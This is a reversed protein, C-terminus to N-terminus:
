VSCPSTPRIGPHSHAPGLFVFGPPEVGLAAWMVGTLASCLSVSIIGHERLLVFCVGLKKRVNIKACINLSRFHDRVQCFRLLAFARFRFGKSPKSIM